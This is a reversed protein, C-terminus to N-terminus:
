DEVLGGTGKREAFGLTEEVGHAFQAVLADADDVNRMAQALDGGNGIADDSEPVAFVGARERAVLDGVIVHDAKHDAPIQFAEVYATAPCHATLAVRTKGHFSKAGAGMRLVFDREIDGPAFDETEGAEHACAAGFGGVSEKADIRWEGA